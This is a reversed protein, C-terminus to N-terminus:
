VIGGTSHNRGKVVTGNWACLFFTELMNACHLANVLDALDGNSQIKGNLIEETAGDHMLDNRLNGYIKQIMRRYERQEEPVHNCWRAMNQSITGGRGRSVDTSAFLADAAIMLKILRDELHYSRVSEAYWRLALCMRRREDDPLGKVFSLIRMVWENWNNPAAFWPRYFRPSQFNRHLPWSFNINFPNGSTNMAWDESRYMMAPSSISFHPSPEGQATSIQLISLYFDINNFLLFEPDIVNGPSVLASFPITWSERVLAYRLFPPPADGPYVMTCPLKIEPLIHKNFIEDEEPRMDRVYWGQDLDIRPIVYGGSLGILPLIVTVRLSGRALIQESESLLVDLVGQNWSLRKTINLYRWLISILVGSGLCIEMGPIITGDPMTLKKLRRDESLGRCLAHFRTDREMADFVFPFLGIIRDIEPPVESYNDNQCMRYLWLRSDDVAPISSDDIHAQLIKLSFRILDSILSTQQSM